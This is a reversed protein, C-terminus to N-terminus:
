EGYSGYKKWIPVFDEGLAQEWSPFHNKAAQFARARLGKDETLRRAAALTDAWAAISNETVLLGAGQEKIFRGVGSEAAAMVPLGCALAEAAALSWTEVQSPLALWDASAYLEALEEPPLFGPTAAHAGLKEKIAGAAPGIGAALLFLKEGRRQAEAVADVLLYINKGEDLRGAFALLLANEPIAYRAALKDRAARQPNFSDFDLGLRYAYAAKAHQAAFAHDEARSTLVARARGQHRALKRRMGAAAQEPIKFVTNLVGGFSGLKKELMSRTFLETYSVTDTHVSHTFPINNQAAVKEATQAFNFFADTTHILDANELAAALQPHYSAMDTYDPVHGLFPMARTSFVPKHVAFRVQPAIAEVRPADGAVHLTLDLDGRTAAAGALREWCKIHGGSRPTWELDILVHVRLPKTM